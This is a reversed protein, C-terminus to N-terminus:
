YEEEEEADEMRDLFWGIGRAVDKMRNWQQQGKQALLQQRKLDDNAMSKKRFLQLEERMTNILRGARAGTVYCLCYLAPLLRVAAAEAESCSSYDITLDTELSVEGAAQTLFATVKDDAIDDVTLNVLNRVSDATM